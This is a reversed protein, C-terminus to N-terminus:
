RVNQVLQPSQTMSPQSPMPNVLTIQSQGPSNHLQQNAANQSKKTGAKARARKPGDGNPSKKRRISRVAKPNTPKVPQGTSVTPQQSPLDPLAETGPIVNAPDYDVANQLIRNKASTLVWGPTVCTTKDKRTRAKEWKAGLARHTVLHSCKDDLSRSYEGGHYTVLAALKIKDAKLLGSATFRMGSFLKSGPITSFPQVPVLQRHISCM